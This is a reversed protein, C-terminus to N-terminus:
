WSIVGWLFSCVRVIKKRLLRRDREVIGEVVESLLGGGSSDCSGRQQCDISLRSARSGSGSQRRCRDNGTDDDGALLPRNADLDQKGVYGNISSSM